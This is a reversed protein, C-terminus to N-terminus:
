LRVPLKGTMAGGRFVEELARFCPICYDYAVIKCACDPLLPLDYPNRLAVIILEKGTQALAQALALQGRFLHANVTGLVIRDHRAAADLVRRIEEEEPNRSTIVAEAGFAAAMHEPFHRMKM